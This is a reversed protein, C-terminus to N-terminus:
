PLSFIVKNIDPHFALSKIKVAKRPMSKPVFNKTSETDIFYIKNDKKGRIFNMNGHAYDQFGAAEGVRRVDINNNLGTEKQESSEIFEALIIANKLSLSIHNITQDYMLTGDPTGADPLTTMMELSQKDPVLIFKQPVAVSDALSLKEITKELHDRGLVRGIDGRQKEMLSIEKGDKIIKYSGKETSVLDDQTILRDKIQAYIKQAYDELQVINYAWLPPFFYYDDKLSDYYDTMKDKLFEDYYKKVFAKNYGHNAVRYLKKQQGSSFTTLEVDGGEYVKLLVKSFESIQPPSESKFQKQFLSILHTNWNLLAVELLDPQDKDTTLPIGKRRLIDFTIMNIDFSSGFKYPSMEAFQALVCRGDKDKLSYLQPLIQLIREIQVESPNKRILDFVLIAKNDEDYFFTGKEEFSLDLTMSLLNTPTLKTDPNAELAKLQKELVEFPRFTNYSTVDNYIKVALMKDAETLDDFKLDEPFVPASILLFLLVIKRM